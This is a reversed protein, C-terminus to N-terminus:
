NVSLYDFKYEDPNMTCRFLKIDYKSQEIYHIILLQVGEPCNIGFDIRKISTPNYYYYFSKHGKDVTEICKNPDIFLRYEKEYGWIKSKTIFSEKLQTQFETSTPDLTSDISSRVGSYIVKELKNMGDKLLDAEYHIRFGSHKATYHSWLLIQETEEAEESSFCIMRAIENSKIKMNKIIQWFHNNDFRNKILSIFLKREEVLKRKFEKKNKVKKLRKLELYLINMYDKDKLYKKAKADDWEKENRPLFEFPDNFSSPLSVKLQSKIIANIGNCDLYKHLIMVNEYKLYINSETNM